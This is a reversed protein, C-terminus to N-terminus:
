QRIYTASVQYSTGSSGGAILRVNGGYTIDFSVNRTEGWYQSFPRFGVPLTAITGYGSVASTLTIDLTAYVVEGVRVLKTNNTNITHTSSFTGTQKNNLTSYVTGANVGLLESEIYTGVFISGYTNGSATYLFGEIYYYSGSLFRGVFPVGVPLQGGNLLRQVKQIMTEGVVNTLYVSVLYPIVDQAAAKYTLQGREIAFEDTGVVPTSISPLQDIIM